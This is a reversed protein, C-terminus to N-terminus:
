PRLYVAMTFGYPRFGLKRAIALSAANSELTRYQAVLGRALAEGAAATVAQTGFGGGRQRPRSVVYLHALGQPWRQYGAIAALEGGADFAGFVDLGDQLQLGGHEWEQETCARRLDDIAARDCAELRRVNAPARARLATAYGLFAPGIAREISFPALEPALREPDRVVEASWRAARAALADLARAPLSVLPAAHSVLVFLAPYEVLGAGHARVRTTEGRLEGPSCGLWGSWYADIRELIAPAFSSVSAV